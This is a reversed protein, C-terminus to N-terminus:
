PIVVDTTFQDSPKNSQTWAGFQIRVTTGSTRSRVVDCMAGITPVETGDISFILYPYQLPNPTAKAAASGPDVGYVLLGNTYPLDYYDALDPTNRIVNVGLYDINKGSKLKDAVYKAENSTIAYNEAQSGNASYSNIGIVEGKKNFLPGGSNGPNIPATTELLDEQGDFAFTAHVQSILGETVILKNRADNGINAPFGLAVSGDAPKVEDSNGIKAPKFNGRDVSLLAIDDCASLAVVKASYTRTGDTPDTVKISGAGIVVHANTLIHTADEWVIGSGGGDGQPSTTSIRVVSQQNQELIAAATLVAPTPSIVATPSGATTATSDDDDGGGCAFAFM